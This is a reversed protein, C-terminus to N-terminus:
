YTGFPNSEAFDLIQDAELEFNENEKYKDTTTNAASVQINYVAGSKQGTVQEGPYFQGTQIGVQLISTDQDWNKVRAVVNSTAGIVEENFWFTGIGTTSGTGVTLVPPSFFGAGASNIGIYPVTSIGSTTRIVPTVSAPHNPTLSPLTVTASPATLYGLGFNTMVITQIGKKGSPVLSCTAAAGAGGGGTITIVPEQTYGSGANTILIEKISTINNRTTM